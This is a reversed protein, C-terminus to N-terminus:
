GSIMWALRVDDLSAQNELRKILDAKKGYVPLRREKLIAKLEPIKLKSLKDAEPVSEPVAEPVKLKSVPEEASADPSSSGAVKTAAAKEIVPELVYSSLGQDELMEELRALEEDSPEEGDDLSELIGLEVILEEKTGPFEPVGRENLLAQLEPVSLKSLRDVTRDLHDMHLREWKEQTSPLKISPAEANQRIHQDVDIGAQLTDIDSFLPEDIAQIIKDVEERDRQDMLTDQQSNLDHDIELQMVLEAKAGSAPLGKEKLMAKLEPVTLKSFDGPATVSQPEPVTALEDEKYEPDLGQMIENMTKKNIGTEERFERDHDIELQTILEAKTGVIPLGKKRHLAKLEEVTLESFREKDNTNWFQSRGRWAGVEAQAAGGGVVKRSGGMKNLKAQALKASLEKDDSSTRDRQALQADVERPWSADRIPKPEEVEALLKVVEAKSLLGDDPMTPAQLAEPESLRLRAILAAKNGSVPLGRDKLLSKLGMATLVSLDNDLESEALGAPMINREKVASMGFPLTRSM